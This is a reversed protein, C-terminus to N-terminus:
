QLVHSIYFTSSPPVIELTDAGLDGGLCKELATCCNYVILVRILARPTKKKRGIWIHVNLLIM